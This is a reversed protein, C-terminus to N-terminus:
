AKGGVLRRVDEVAKRGIRKVLGREEGERWVEFGEVGLGSLDKVELSEYGERIVRGVERASLTSRVRGKGKEAEIIGHFHAATEILVDVLVLQTQTTIDAPDPPYAVKFKTLNDHQEVLKYFLDDYDTTSPLFVNGHAIALALIKLLPLTLTSIDTTSAKLDTAYTHLFRILSLLSQWLLPWHYAFRIRNQALCTLIRHIPELTAAYLDADLRRRLNHNIADLSIDLIAAAYPRSSSTSPLYPPRQRCLQISASTQTSPTCLTKCLNPDEILLRLTTLTLISYLSARPSRYAHHLIYSSASLYSSFPTPTSKSESPTTILNYAFIKNAQVFDYVALFVAIRPGPLSAFKEQEDEPGPAVPNIAKIPALVGLGIYALTNALSWSTDPVDNIVQVYESRINVCTSGFGLILKKVTNENVFDELRLRYPNRYEFKNYNALLGLLVFPDFAKNATDAEQVFKMLAPFLDRHTFYSVLSTQWAGSTLALAVEIAKRRVDLSRGVRITTEIANAFDSFVADVEDLGALVTIIDASPNTYKKALIGALFVTLTDLAVEDSPSRAAKLHQVAHVFLQQTEHQFHLLTDADVSDLRKQFTQKDPRLLFFETWYGESVTEEDDHFLEDYLQAIKPQFSPRADQVLPSVLVDM